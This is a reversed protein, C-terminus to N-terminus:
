LGKKKLDVLEADAGLRKIHDQLVGIWKTLSEHLTWPTSMDLVLAVLTSGLTEKTLVTTLLDTHSVDGDLINVGIRAIVEALPSCSSSAHM